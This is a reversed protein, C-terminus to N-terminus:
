EDICISKVNSFLTGKDSMNNKVTFKVKLDVLDEVYEANAQSLLQSFPYSELRDATTAILFTTVDDLKIKILVNEDKYFFSDTIVGKHTGEEIGFVENLPTLKRRNDKSINELNKTKM